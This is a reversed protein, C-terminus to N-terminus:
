RATMPTQARAHAFQKRRDTRISPWSTLQHGRVVDAEALTWPGHCIAAVPKGSEVFAKVFAVADGDM